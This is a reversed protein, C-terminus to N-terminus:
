IKKIFGQNADVEVLDNNKFNGTAGSVGILCPIKLERAILAAHSTLGGEECVIAEANRMGEIYDPRTMVAILIQGKKFNLTDKYGLCIKVRGRAYGPSAVLGTLKTQHTQPPPQIIKQLSAILRTEVSIIQKNPSGVYV